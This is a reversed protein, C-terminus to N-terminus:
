LDFNLDDYIRFYLQRDLSNRMPTSYVYHGIIVSEYYTGYKLEINNM